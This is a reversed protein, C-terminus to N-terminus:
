KSMEKIRCAISDCNESPPFASAIDTYVQTQAQLEARMEKAVDVRVQSRHWDGLPDSDFDRHRENLIRFILRTGRSDVSEMHAIVLDLEGPTLDVLERSGGKLFEPNARLAALDRHGRWETYALDVDLSWAHRDVCLPKSVHCTWQIYDQPRRSPPPKQTTTTSVPATTTTTIPPPPKGDSDCAALCGLALLALARMM